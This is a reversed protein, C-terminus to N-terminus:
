NKHTMYDEMQTLWEDSPAKYPIFKEITSVGEKFLIARHLGLKNAEPVGILQNSDKESMQFTIRLEFENLLKNALSRYFNNLSDCWILTFINQEPGDRLITTFTNFIDSTPEEEARLARIRHLGHIFLYIFPKHTSNTKTRRHIENSIDTFLSPLAQKSAIDVTHPLRQERVRLRDIYPTDSRADVIYFHTNEPSQQVALTFFAITLLGLTVSEDQGIILVNEGSRQRLQINTTEKLSIPNGLWITALEQNSWLPTKSLSTLVQNDKIDANKSGDFINQIHEPVYNNRSALQRIADLHLSLEEDSLWFSQFRNNGTEAGSDANYIAEGSRFQYLLSSLTNDEKLVLLSDTKENRMAIRVTMQTITSDDLITSRGLFSLGGLTQSSLVVHIGFGRGTRVFRDLHEYAKAAITDQKMFLEQFEDIILLIRPMRTTPQSRRFQTFDPVSADSFLQKRQELEVELGELVSLGFERESQIAIVRAHPLRYRAYPTFGITKFDILYFELENPTYILSLGVILVHLLTTKGSGTTGVILVHHASGKGLRLYQYKTAGIPGLPTILEESTNQDTAWWRYEPIIQKEVVEKFPLEVHRHVESAKEGIRKLLQNFTAQQPLTDLQLTCLGADKHQWTFSQGNYTIVRSTRELETIKFGSPLLQETDITMLIYVGCRPGTAAIHTLLNAAEKTFNTPFGIVVLIHYPEAIKGAVRNYEDITSYQDRLYQQIVNEMHDSLETLQQTIHEKKTWAKRTILQEDYDALQLFAAVNKGLGTPDILTFRLQGPSHATLLRLMLSQLAQIAREKAILPTKFLINDGGPCITLAPLIPFHSAEVMVGLRALPITLPHPQWNQWQPDDWGAVLLGDEHIFHKLPSTFNAIEQQLKRMREERAQEYYAELDVIRDRRTNQLTENRKTAAAEVASSAQMLQLYSTTAKKDTSSTDRLGLLTVLLILAVIVCIYSVVVTISLFSWYVRFVSLLWAFLAYITYLAAPLLASLGIITRLRPYIGRRMRYDEISSIVENSAKFASKQSEIMYTLTNLPEVPVVVTENVIDSRSNRRLVDQAKQVEDRVRKIGHTIQEQEQKLIKEIEATEQAFLEQIEQLDKEYDINLQHFERILRDYRSLMIGASVIPQTMSGSLFTTVADPDVSPITMTPKLSPIPLTTSQAQQTGSLYADELANAFDQVRPFRQKPDKSLARLLVREISDPVKGKLTPPQTSVHQAIIETRMGQFPLNGSLWEYAVIALAYQDSALTPRGHLQEPAIYYVTGIPEQLGSQAIQAIGFDCLVIKDDNLVLMNEPKVDRHILNKKIM